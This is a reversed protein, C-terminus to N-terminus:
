IAEKEFVLVDLTGDGGSVSHFEVRNELLDEIDWDDNFESLPLTDGFDLIFKEHGSETSVSWTGDVVDDNKTAVVTGSELFDFSIGDFNVTEDDGSDNYKAVMWNGDILIDSLSANGEGGGIDTPREFTLYEVSGDGGSIDKLKIINGNFEIIDWDDVIEALPYEDGFFLELELTGDDGYTAWEGRYGQGDKSAEVVGNELFDFIYGDFIATEDKEDMFKTIEWLGDVLVHRLDSDDVDDDNYDNDDDEDCDDKAADILHELENNNNVEYEEGSSLVVTIPYSISAIEDEDFEKFFHHLQEDGEITIVDSLQNESDFVSITFPYVFDICEIDDDIENEGCSKWLAELDDENNLVLESHDALIVKIPFLIEIIDDDWEFQDLIREVTVLDEESDLFIELGNVVVTIPLVISSCSSKDIINDESGDRMATRQVLDAVKSDPTIVQDAPTEIIETVDQQCGFFFLLGIMSVLTFLRLSTKM